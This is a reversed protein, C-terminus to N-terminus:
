PVRVTPGYRALKADAALLIMPECLSQAVLMRDFPDKHDAHQPLGLLGLIHGDHLGLWDFGDATMRQIFRRLASQLKGIGAKLVIEWLSVRSIYANNEVDLLPDAGMTPVRQPAIQWWIALQTDELLPRM